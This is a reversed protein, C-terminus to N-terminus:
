APRDGALFRRRAKDPDNEEPDMVFEEWSEEWQQLGRVIECRGRFVAGGPTNDPWRWEVDAHCLGMVADRDRANMGRYLQDVLESRATKM